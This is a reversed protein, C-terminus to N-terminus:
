LIKYLFFYTVDKNNQASSQKKIIAKEVFFNLAFFFSVLGDETVPKDLGFGAM